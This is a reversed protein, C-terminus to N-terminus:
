LFSLYTKDFTFHFDKKFTQKSVDGEEGGKKMNILLKRNEKFRPTTLNNKCRKGQQSCAESIDAILHKLKNFYAENM